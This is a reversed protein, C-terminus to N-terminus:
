LGKLAKKALDTGYVEQLILYVTNYDDGEALYEKAIGKLEAVLPDNEEGGSTEEELKTFYEEIEQPSKGKLAAQLEKGEKYTPTGDKNTILV